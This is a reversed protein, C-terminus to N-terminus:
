RDKQFCADGNLNSPDCHPLNGGSYHVALAPALPYSNNSAKQKPTDLVCDDDCPDALEESGWTHELGLWHGVEHNMTKSAPSFNSKAIFVRLDNTASSYPLFAYGGVYEGNSVLADAVYINLRGSWPVLGTPLTADTITPLSTTVFDIGNFNPIGSTSNDFRSLCFSIKSDGGINNAGNVGWIPNNNGIDVIRASYGGFDANLKEIQQHVTETVAAQEAATLQHGSLYHVVVPVVATAFPTPPTVVSCQIV